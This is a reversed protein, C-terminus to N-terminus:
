NNFYYVFVNLLQLDFSIVLKIFWLDIKDFSFPLDLLNLRYSM